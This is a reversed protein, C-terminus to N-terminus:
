YVKLLENADMDVAHMSSPTKMKLGPCTLNGPFVTTVGGIQNTSSYQVTPQTDLMNFEHKIKTDDTPMPVKNNPDGSPGVYDYSHYEQTQHSSYYHVNTDTWDYAIPQEEMTNDPDSNLM